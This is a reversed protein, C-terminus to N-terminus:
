DNVTGNFKVAYHEVVTRLYDGTRRDLCATVLAIPCAEDGNGFRILPLQYFVRKKDELNIAWEASDVNLLFVLGVQRSAADIVGRTDLRLASAIDPFRKLLFAEVADLSAPDIGLKTGMTQELEERLDQSRAVWYQFEETSFLRFAALEQTM